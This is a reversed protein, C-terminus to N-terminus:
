YLNIKENSIIFCYDLKTLDLLPKLKIEHYLSKEKLEHSLITGACFGEPFVAGQGSSFVLDDQTVSTLHTVFNLNCTNITNTGECIGQANTTNTFAAIKCHKDTICMVKSYYPSVEVVKGLIQLKYIAVMNNAIGHSSGKNILFYHEQDSFNKTLIKTLIASSLNYNREFDRLEQTASLHNTAASLGIYREQLTMHEQQLKKYEEELQQFTIKKLLLNKAQDSLFSATVLAPYTITQAANELPGKNFTITKSYFLFGLAICTVSFITIKKLIQAM